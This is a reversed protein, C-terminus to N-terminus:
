LTSEGNLNKRLRKLYQLEQWFTHLAEMDASQYTHNAKNAEAKQAMERINEETQKMREQLEAGAKAAAHEDGALAEEVVDNLDMMEMLFLQPLPRDAAKELYGEKKLLYYVRGPLQSLSEWAQNNMATQALAEDQRAPDSAFFDPHWERQKKLFRRRLDAEDPLLSEPIGYFAFYDM